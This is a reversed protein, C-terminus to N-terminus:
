QLMRPCSACLAIGVPGQCAALAHLCKHYVSYPVSKLLRFHQRCYRTSLNNKTTTISDRIISLPLANFSHAAAAAAVGQCTKPLGGAETDRMYYLSEYDKCLGAILCLQALLHHLKDQLRSVMYATLKAHRCSHRECIPKAVSTM